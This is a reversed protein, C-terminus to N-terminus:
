RFIYSGTFGAGVLGSAVNSAGITQLEADVDIDPVDGLLAAVDLCSGFAVVAALAIARPAQAFVASWMIGAGEGPDYLEYVRWFPAAPERPLTWGARAADALSWGGAALAAYFAVPVALIAAPLAAPHRARKIVVYFVGAAACCAALKPGADAADAALARWGAVSDLDAGTSLSVGAM